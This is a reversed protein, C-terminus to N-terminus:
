GTSGNHVLEDDDNVAIQSFLNFTIAEVGSLSDIVESIRESLKRDDGIQWCAMRYLGARAITVVTVETDTELAQAYHLADTIKMTSTMAQMAIWKEDDTQFPTEIWIWHIGDDIVFLPTMAEGRQFRDEVSACVREHLEDITGHLKIDTRALYPRSM